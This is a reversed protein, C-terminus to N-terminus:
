RDKSVFVPQFAPKHDNANAYIVYQGAPLNPLPMQLDIELPTTQTALRANVKTDRTAMRSTRGWTRLQVHVKNGAANPNQVWVKVRIMRDFGVSYATIKLRKADQVNSAQVKKDRAVTQACACDDTYGDDLKVKQRIEMSDSFDNAVFSAIFDFPVENPVEGPPVAFRSKWCPLEVGQDTGDYTNNDNQICCFVFWDSQVSGCATFDPKLQKPIINCPDTADHKPCLLDNVDTCSYQGTLAEAFLRNIKGLDQQALAVLRPAVSDAAPPVASSSVVSGLVLALGVCCICLTWRM